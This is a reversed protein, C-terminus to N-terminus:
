RKLGREMRRYAAIFNLRGRVLRSKVGDESLGLMRAIEARSRGEHLRLVLAVAQEPPISRLARRVLDVEDSPVVHVDSARELPLFRFRRARRLDDLALNTAIQFLWSRPDTAVTRSRLARAFTEQMLDEAREQTSALRRLYRLLAPGQDRYLEDWDLDVLRAAAAADM